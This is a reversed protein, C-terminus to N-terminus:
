RICESNDKDAKAAFSEAMGKAPSFLYGFLSVEYLLKRGKAKATLRFPLVM